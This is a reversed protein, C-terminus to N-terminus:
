FHKFDEDSPLDKNSDNDSFQGKWDLAKWVRSDDPDHLLKDWKKHYSTNVSPNITPASAM